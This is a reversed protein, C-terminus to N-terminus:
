GERYRVPFKSKGGGRMSVFSGGLGSLSGEGYGDGDGDGSLSDGYGDGDFGLESIGDLWRTEEFRSPQQPAWFGEYDDM